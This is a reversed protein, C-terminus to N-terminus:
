HKKGGGGTNRSTTSRLQRSRKRSAIPLLPRLCLAMACSAPTAGLRQAANQARRM